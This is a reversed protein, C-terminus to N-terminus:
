FFFEKFEDLLLRVDFGQAREILVPEGLGITRAEAFVEPRSMQVGLVARWLFRSFNRGDSNPSMRQSM